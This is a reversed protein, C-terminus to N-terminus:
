LALRVLGARFGKYLGMHGHRSLIDRWVDRYTPSGMAMHTRMTELPYTILTGAAGAM